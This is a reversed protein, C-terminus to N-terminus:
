GCRLFVQVPLLEQSWSTMGWGVMLMAVRFRRLVMAQLLKQMLWHM